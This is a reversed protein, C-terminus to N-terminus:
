PKFKMAKSLLTAQSQPSPGWIAGFEFKIANFTGMTAATAAAKIRRGHDGDGDQGGAQGDDEEHGGGDEDDVVM